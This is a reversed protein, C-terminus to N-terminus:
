LIPRESPRDQDSDGKFIVYRSDSPNKVAATIVINEQLFPEFYNPIIVDGQPDLVAMGLIREESESLGFEMCDVFEAGEEALLSSWASRLNPLGDFDGVIDVVRLCSATGVTIKRTVFVCDKKVVGDIRACLVQYRYIPHHLYRNVVYRATKRPRWGTEILVNELEREAVPVLRVDVCDERLCAPNRRDVRAISFEPMTDNLLYLQKLRLVDFGLWRYVKAVHRNIGIAAITDAEEAIPELLKLGAGPEAIGKWIALWFDKEKCLSPDYQSTPIYGLVGVVGGDGAKEGLIFNYNGDSSKHMFDVLPIDHAMIHGHKWHNEIFNMVESVHAAGCRSVDLCVGPFLENFAVALKGILDQIMIFSRNIRWIVEM